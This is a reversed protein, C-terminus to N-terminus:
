SHWLHIEAEIEMVRNRIADIPISDIMRQQEQRKKLLTVMDGIM